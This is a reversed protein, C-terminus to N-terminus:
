PDIGEPRRESKELRELVCAFVHEMAPTTLGMVRLQETTMQRGNSDFCRFKMM